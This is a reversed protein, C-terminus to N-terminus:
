HKDAWWALACPAVNITGVANIPSVLRGSVKLGDEGEYSFEGRSVIPPAAFRVEPLSGCSLSILMNNEVVFHMETDYEDGSHADWIGNFDFSEPPAFTYGRALTDERGGGNRVVVDVTGADHALTWFRITNTDPVYVQRPAVGGFTVRVGGEFGTGSITGWAGGAITSTAPVIQSIHPQLGFPAPNPASSPASPATPL